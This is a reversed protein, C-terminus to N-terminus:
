WQLNAREPCKMYFPVMCYTTKQIQSKESLMNKLKRWTTAQKQAKNRKMALYYDTKHIYWEKNVLQHIRLNNRSNPPWSYDKLIWMYTNTHVHTKMEKPYTNLFPNVLDCSWYISFSGFWEGQHRCWKVDGGTIYSPNLKKVDIPM